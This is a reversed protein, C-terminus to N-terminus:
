RVKKLPREPRRGDGDPGAGGIWVPGAISSPAGSEKAVNRKAANRSKHM